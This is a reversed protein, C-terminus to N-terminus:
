RDDFMRLIRRAEEDLKDLGGNNWVQADILEQSVGNESHHERVTFSSLDPRAIEVCISDYREKFYKVENDYRCDTIVVFDARIGRDSGATIRKELMKCFADQDQARVIAGLEQMLMRPSVGKILETEKNSGLVDSSHGAFFGGVAMHLPHALALEWSTRGGYQNLQDHICTAFTNKGSRAKGTLLIVKNM